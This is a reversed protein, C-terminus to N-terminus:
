CFQISPAPPLSCGADVCVYEATNYKWIYDRVNRYTLVNLAELPTIGCLDELEMRLKRMEGVDLPYEKTREACKHFEKAIQKDLVLSIDRM